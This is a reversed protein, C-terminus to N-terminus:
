FWWIISELYEIKKYFSFSQWIKKLYFSWFLRKNQNKSYASFVAM